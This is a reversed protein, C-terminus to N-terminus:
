GSSSNISDIHLHLNECERLEIYRYNNNTIFKIIKNKMDNIVIENVEKPMEFQSLPYSNSINLPILGFFPLALFIEADIETLEKMIKEKLDYISEYNKSNYCYIIAKQKRKSYRDLYQKYRLMEPRYLSSEDFLFIGKPNGKIRPDYKELYDKYKLLTKFATYTAPHSYAKEQLYEFLRGEKIAQKTAKIEELIAYLNHIALLKTREKKSMLLLDKPTYKSCIPCSCPFYELEELKYVRSRTIYRGDRAYIIYSASDFTDVGLAVAFPIIHPLGGGFLHFPIGRKISSKAIRIMEIITDYKYRELLVTPSGLAAIKYIEDFNNLQKASYEVLDTFKGGQIPYVWIINNPNNKIINSAEKVREITQEVTHRAIEYDDTNGTPIDLIVAIDPRIKTQYNVIELNSVEINGYELIQYAGSDTMIIFDDANLERHINERVLNNKYLIFANTIFNKLGLNKLDTIRVDDRLINIVPFFAPTELKGHATELIGIRGALDEHKVEFITM